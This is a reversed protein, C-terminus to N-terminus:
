IRGGQLVGDVPHPFHREGSHEEGEDEHEGQAYAANVFNRICFLALCGAAPQEESEEPAEDGERVRAQKEEQGGAAKPYEEARGVFGGGDCAGRKGRDEEEGDDSGPDVAVPGDEVDEDRHARVESGLEVGAAAGPRISKWKDGCQREDLAIRLGHAVLCESFDCPDAVLACFRLGVDGSM